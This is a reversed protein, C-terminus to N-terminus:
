PSDLINVGGSSYYPKSEPLVLAFRVIETHVAESDAPDELTAPVRGATFFVHTGGFKKLFDPPVRMYVNPSPVVRAPIRAKAAADAAVADADAPNPPSQVRLPFATM